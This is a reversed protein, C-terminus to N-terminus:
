ARRGMQEIHIQLSTANKAYGAQVVTNGTGVPITPTILGATDSLYYRSGPTLGSFGDLVGESVVDVPDTDAASALAFGMLRSEAGGATASAKSVNDAASIYLADVAAITEDATYSNFVQNAFNNAWSLQGAGDTTIVQNVSGDAQPWNVGDLVLDGAGDPTLILNGDTDTSVISNGSALVNGFQGSLLTIEDAATDMELPVGDAAIKLLKIQAM